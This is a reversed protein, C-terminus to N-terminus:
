KSNINKTIKNTYIYSDDDENVNYFYGDVEVCNNNNEKMEENLLSEEEKGREKIM